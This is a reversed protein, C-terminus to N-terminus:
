MQFYTIKYPFQIDGHLYKIKIKLTKVGSKLLAKTSNRPQWNKSSSSAWAGSSGRGEMPFSVIM